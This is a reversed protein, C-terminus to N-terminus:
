LTKAFNTLDIRGWGSRIDKGKGEIDVAYKKLVNYIKKQNYNPYATKILAAAASVHPAAMSTGSMIATGPMGYISTLGKVNTGPAAFDVKEGYNSYSRDVKNNSKTAAVTIVYQSSAPYSENVNRAENGAAVVVTTGHAVVDRLIAEYVSLDFTNDGGISMNVIDAENRDAYILGLLTQVLTGLGNSSIIKVPIIKVNHPTADIITSACHTGHGHFDHPMPIFLVFDMPSLARTRMDPDLYNIGTDLIAVRVESKYGKQELKKQVKDMGMNRIGWSLYDPETTLALTKVDAKKEKPLNVKFVTDAIVNGAGYKAKLAKYAEKAATKTDYQLVYWGHYYLADSAKKTFAKPLTKGPRVLLRGTQFTDKLNVTQKVDEGDTVKFLPSNQLLQAGFKLFSQATACVTVNKDTEPAPGKAFSFGACLSFMLLFATLVATLKTLPRRTEKKLHM